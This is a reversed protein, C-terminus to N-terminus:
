PPARLWSAAYHSWGRSYIVTPLNTDSFDSLIVQRELHISCRSFNELFDTRAKEDRFRVHSPTFDAFPSSSAAESHLPNRSPTSKRKPAM